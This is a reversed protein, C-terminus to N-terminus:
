LEMLHNIIAALTQLKRISHADQEQRNVQFSIAKARGAIDNGIEEYLGAFLERVPAQFVVEFALATELAPDRDFTEYRSVKAGGHAGLLHAVESQSLGSRKRHTLLYNRLRRPSM